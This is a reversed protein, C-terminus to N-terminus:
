CSNELLEILKKCTKETNLYYDFDELIYVIYTVFSDKVSDAAMSHAAALHM